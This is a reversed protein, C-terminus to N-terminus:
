NVNGVNKEDFSFHLPNLLKYELGPIVEIESGGRMNFEPPPDRL